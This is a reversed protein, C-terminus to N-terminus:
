SGARALRGANRGIRMLSEWAPGPFRHLGEMVQRFASLFHEVDNEGIVLPPILKITTMGHGAVQTLIGHDSLLPMTVAQCFLDPSLAHVTKWAAKLRLSRPPGFDIAIMLGRGRVGKLFEFEDVMDRLGELLKQGMKEARAALNEEDVVALTALLATAAFASKGFTSSHVVARDLSSFVADYVRETMLVASAPVFGGSLAKSMLVMDPAARPDRTMEPEHHLALFRGTRAVGTQVEDAVFLAGHDHCLRAAAPLYGPPAIHVGKGQVPEIFFAAVDGKELERELADLDGFPICTSETLPGFGERFVRSGNLALAGTTLGHFSSSAHLIRSRGTTRRAFKIATENAEAGTSGFYVYDLGLGVRRILEEAALAVLPSLEMQVLSAVDSNMFDALAKKVQPHNRGINFVGYGALMDLYRRGQADWLYPGEGRVYTRDFGILGLARAFRPNVRGAYRRAPNELAKRYTEAFDFPM